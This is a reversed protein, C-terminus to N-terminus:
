HGARWNLVVTFPTPTSMTNAQKLMIFRRDAAVDYSLPTFRQHLYPSAFLQVPKAFDLTSGTKVGVAMVNRGELYFLERGDKSWAPDTGGNPSIRRPTGPGPYPQVWIELAGTANSPYALWRGDPSLSAGASGENFRTQM